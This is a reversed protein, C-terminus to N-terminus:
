LRTGGCSPEGYKQSLRESFRSCIMKCLRTLWQGEPDLQPWVGLAPSLPAWRQAQSKHQCQPDSESRWTQVAFEKGVSDEGWSEEAKVSPVQFSLPLHTPQFHIAGMPEYIQVNTGRNHSQQPLIWLHPRPPLPTDNRALRSTEFTQVMEM